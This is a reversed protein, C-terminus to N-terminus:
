SQPLTLPVFDLERMNQGFKDDFDTRHFMTDAAWGAWACGGIAMKLMMQRHARKLDIGTESPLHDFMFMSASGLGPHILNSLAQYFAYIIEGNEFIDCVEKVVHIRSPGKTADEEILKELMLTVPEFDNLDDSAMKGISENTRRLSKVALHDLVDASPDLSVLLRSLYIGHEMSTRANSIASEPFGVEDLLFASHAQHFAQKRWYIAIGSIDLRIPDAYPPLTSFWSWLELERTRLLELSPLSGKEKLLTDSWYSPELGCAESQLRLVHELTINENHQGVFGSM